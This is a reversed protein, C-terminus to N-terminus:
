LAPPGPRAPPSVKGKREVGKATGQGLTELHHRQRVEPPGRREAGESRKPNGLLFPGGTGAVGGGEEQGMEVTM